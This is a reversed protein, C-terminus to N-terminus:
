LRPFTNKHGNANKVFPPSMLIVAHFARAFTQIGGAGAFLEPTWLHILNMADRPM